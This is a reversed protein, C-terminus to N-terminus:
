EIILTTNVTLVTYNKHRRHTHESTYQKPIHLELDDNKIAACYKM